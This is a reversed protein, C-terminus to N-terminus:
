RFLRWLSASARIQQSYLISILFHLLYIHQTMLKLMDISLAVPATLGFVIGLLALFWLYFRLYSGLFFLLTSFIQIANLSIMGIFEALENNLKFGAPVGMLWVCGSRLLDNTVHHMSVLIWACVSEINALLLIGFITGFIVDMLFNSWM